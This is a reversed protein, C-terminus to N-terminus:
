ARKLVISLTPDIAHLLKEFQEVSPKRNGQEYRAFANPSSSGLRESAEMLKVNQAVRISRLIFPLFVSLDNGSVLFTNDDSAECMAEFGAHDVAIEVAEKAMRLANTRSKGQTYIALDQIEVSWHKEKGKPPHLRGEVKM